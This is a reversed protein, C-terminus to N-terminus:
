ELAKVPVNEATLLGDNELEKIAEELEEPTNIKVDRIYIEAGGIITLDGIISPEQKM